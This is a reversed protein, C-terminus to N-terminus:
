RSISSFFADFPATGSIHQSYLVRQDDVYLFISDILGSMQFNAQDLLDIIGQYHYRNEVTLASDIRLNDNVVQSSLVRSNVNYVIGLNESLRRASSDMISVATEMFDAENKRSFWVSAVMLVAGALLVICLFSAIIQAYLRSIRWKKM